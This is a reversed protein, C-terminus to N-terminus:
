NICNLPKKGNLAAIINDAAMVSMKTRTEDTASGIHPCLVVNDLEKLEKEVKPENEYVDLGAGWIKKYKLAKVLAKEDVVPGRSTNILIAEKKMINFENDGIMHKTDKTLPTHLSIYDSKKLVEEFSVFQAGTEKEFEKKRSRNYYLIKMNFSKGRKGFARGIRGTGIIGLTRGSVDKGLLLKPSWATFKDNRIYKDGEVVRRAVAFLLAWALDATADTLVDPTNTLYINREKAAEIDMNNYGVAYNAFIKINPEIDMLERDITDALQCLVGDKGKVKKKLEEYTFVRDLENVEVDFHELLKKIGEEPIKRTVLVKKRSM